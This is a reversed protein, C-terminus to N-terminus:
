LYVGIGVAFEVVDPHGERYRFGDNMDWFSVQDGGVAAYRGSFEAFIRGAVRGRVGAGWLALPHVTNPYDVERGSVGSRNIERMAGAGAVAYTYM